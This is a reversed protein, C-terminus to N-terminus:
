GGSTGRSLLTTRAVLVTEGEADTIESQVVLFELPGKAKIEAIRPVARLSDGVHAPRRWEYAQEGHVVRTYDLGLDPDAAAQASAMIQMTTVFTPPALQEPYGAARAADADLFVAAEEGIAKAFRVVHDREVMLELPAYEKGVLSTNLPVPRSRRPQQVLGSYPHLM